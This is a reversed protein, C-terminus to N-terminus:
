EEASVKGRLAGRWHMARRADTRGYSGGGDGREEERVDV